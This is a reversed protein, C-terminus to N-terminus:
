SCKGDIRIRRSLIRGDQGHVEITGLTSPNKTVAIVCSAVAACISNSKQEASTLDTMVNITNGLISVGIVDDYWATKHGPRAFDDALCKRLEESAAANEKPTPFLNSCGILGATSVVILASVFCNSM